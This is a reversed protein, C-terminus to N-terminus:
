GGRGEGPRLRRRPPRSTPRPASLSRDAALLNFSAPAGGSAGGSGARRARVSATSVPPQTRKLACPQQGVGRLSASTLLGMTRRAARPRSARPAKVADADGIQMASGIAHPSTSTCVLSTKTRCRSRRSPPPPAGAGDGREEGGRREGALRGRRRLGQGARAVHSASMRRGHGSAPAAAAAAGARSRARRRRSRHPAAALPAAAPRASARSGAAASSCRRAARPPPPM